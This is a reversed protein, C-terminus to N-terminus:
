ATQTLTEVGNLFQLTAGTRPLTWVSRGAEHVLKISRVKLLPDEIFELRRGLAQEIEAANMTWEMPDIHGIYTLLIDTNEPTRQLMTLLNRAADTGDIPTILLVYPLSGGHVEPPADVVALDFSGVGLLEPGLRVLAGRGQLRSDRRRFRQWRSRLGM